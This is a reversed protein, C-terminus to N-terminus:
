NKTLRRYFITNYTKGFFQYGSEIMFKYLDSQLFSNIEFKQYEFLIIEPRYKTWNNSKLVEFDLGEVDISLFDIEQNQPLYEDFLSELSRTRIEKKYLIDNNSAIYEQALSESFTNLAPEKFIHFTLLEDKDSVAVELNIDLPREKFFPIMSEPMADINIGRWGRDYFIMTNSFRKPHHAGIDIYFGNAKGEFIRSLIMEEGEQSYSLNAYKLIDEKILLSVRSPILMLIVRKVISKLKSNM